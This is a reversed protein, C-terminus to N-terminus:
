ERECPSSIIIELVKSNQYAIVDEQKLTCKRSQYHSQINKWINNIQMQMIIFIKLESQDTLFLIEINILEITSKCKKKKTTFFHDRHETTIIFLSKM